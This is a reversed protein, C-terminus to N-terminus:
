VPIQYISLLCYFDLSIIRKSLFTLLLQFSKFVETIYRIVCFARCNSLTYLSLSRPVSLRLHIVNITESFSPPLRAFSSAPLHYLDPTTSSVLFIFAWLVVTTVCKCFWLSEPLMSLALMLRCWVPFFQFYFFLFCMFIFKLFVMYFLFFSPFSPLFPPLFSHLFFPLFLPLSLLFFSKM